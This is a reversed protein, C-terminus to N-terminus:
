SSRLGYLSFRSYQAFNSETTFTLSSVANTNLWLGSALQLQSASSLARITKNKSTSFVDLLEIVSPSFANAANNNLETLGALIQNTSTSAQSQVQTGTALLRHWAYNNGSDSNFRLWLPGNGSTASASRAVARIQLHQYDAAYSDLSSFTVSAQSSTLIETALLDYSGGAVAGQFQASLLGALLM